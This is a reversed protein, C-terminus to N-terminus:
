VKPKLSSGLFGSVLYTRYTSHDKRMNVLSVRTVVEGEEYPSPQSIERSRMGLLNQRGPSREFDCHLPMSMWPSGDGQMHWLVGTASHCQLHLLCFPKGGGDGSALLDLSINMHMYLVVWQRWTTCSTSYYHGLWCVLLLGASCCVVAPVVLVCWCGSFGLLLTSYLLQFSPPHCVM